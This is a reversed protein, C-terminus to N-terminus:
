SPRRSAPGTSRPANGPQPPTDFLVPPVYLFQCRDCHFSRRKRLGLRAVRALADGCRPCNRREHVQWHRKLVHQRKWSLFDFSYTRAEDVMRMRQPDPLAAIRSLPHISTRFLVENKIINGVGAFITQDLLADCALARPAAQLKAHAALTDWSPSLVDTTWDYHADLDGEIWKASVAHFDIRDGSEFRLSVSPAGTSATAADHIRCQGFLLLHVRLNFDGFDLLLHKGWSCVAHLRRRRLRSLDIAARGDADLVVDGAFRALTERLILISPGEPM